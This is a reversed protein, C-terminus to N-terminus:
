TKACLQGCDTSYDVNGPGYDRDANSPDDIENGSADKNTAKGNGPKHSWKGNNDQRYWHYDPQRISPGRSDGPSIVLQVLHWGKKCPCKSNQSVDELGDRKAAAIIDACTLSSFRQGSEDGPQPKGPPRDTGDPKDPKNCAYSYCNNSSQNENNNWKNPEYPCYGNSCSKGSPDNAFYQAFYGNYLGYGDVYGLPDRSIFRGLEDSFYRARFYWLSTEV